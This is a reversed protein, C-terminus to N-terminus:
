PNVEAALDMPREDRLPVDPATWKSRSEVYLRLATCDKGEMEVMVFAPVVALDLEDEVLFSRAIAVAKIAQNLAGAGIVQIQATGHDRITGAIAGAVAATPSTTSVKILM